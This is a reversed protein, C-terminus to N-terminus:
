SLSKFPEDSLKFDVRYYKLSINSTMRLAYELRMDADRCIIIGKVAENKKCLNEAVWGMYRLTQGVVKDSERGKKLEIVVFCKTKPDQALIDITGIETAYQQGPANEVPDTYMRLEGKFIREFNTVVFDELYKELVFETQDEVDPETALTKSPLSDPLLESFQNETIEYLAQIGFIMRSFELDRPTKAWDVGLYNSHGHEKGTMEVNKLHEYYATKTVKGIGAIRKRGKRAIVVDGVQINHFFNWLMGFFRGRTSASDKSYMSDVAAKLRDEDFSSINDLENWGISIVSNSLDFKWVREWIEPLEWNHPAIVWYRPM